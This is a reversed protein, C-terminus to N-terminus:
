EDQSLFKKLISEGIKLNDNHDYVYDSLFYRESATLIREERKYVGRLRLALERELLDVLEQFGEATGTYHM